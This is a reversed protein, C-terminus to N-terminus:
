DASPVFEPRSMPELVAAFVDLEPRNPAALLEAACLSATGLCWSRSEHTDAFRAGLWLRVQDSTGEWAEALSSYGDALTELESCALASDWGDSLELFWNSM